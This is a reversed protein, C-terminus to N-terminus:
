FCSVSALSAPAGTITGKFVIVESSMITPRLRLVRFPRAMPVAIAAFRTGSSALADVEASAVVVLVVVGSGVTTVTTTGAGSRGGVGVEEDM